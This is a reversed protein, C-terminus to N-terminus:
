LLYNTYKIKFSYLMSPQIGTETVKLHGGKIM